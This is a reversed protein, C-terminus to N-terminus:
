VGLLRHLHGIGNASLEAFLVLLKAGSAGLARSNLAVEGFLPGAILMLFSAFSGRNGRGLHFCYLGYLVLASVVAIGTADYPCPIVPGLLPEALAEGIQFATVAALLYIGVRWVPKSFGNARLRPWAFWWAMFVPVLFLALLAGKAFAFQASTLGLGKAVYSDTSCAM